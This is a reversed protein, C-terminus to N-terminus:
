SLPLLLLLRPMPTCSSILAADDDDDDDDDNNDGWVSADINYRVPLLCFPTQVWGENDIGAM